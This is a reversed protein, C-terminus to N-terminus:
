IDEPSDFLERRASLLAQEDSVSLIVTDIEM